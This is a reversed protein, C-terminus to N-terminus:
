AMVVSSGAGLHGCTLGTPRVGSTITRGFVEAVVHVLVPVHCAVVLLGGHHRLDVVVAGDTAPDSDSIVEHGVGAADKNVQCVERLDVVVDRHDPKPLLVPVLKPDDAVRPYSFYTNM